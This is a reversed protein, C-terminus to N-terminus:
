VRQHPHGTLHVLFRSSEFASHMLKTIGHCAIYANGGQSARICRVRAVKWAFHNQGCVSRSGVSFYPMKNSATLNLDLTKPKTKNFMELMKTCFITYHKPSSGQLLHWTVLFWSPDKICLTCEHMGITCCLM